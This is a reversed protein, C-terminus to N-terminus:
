VIDILGAHRRPRQKLVHDRRPADLLLIHREGDREALLKEAAFTSDADVAAAEGVRRKREDRVVFEVAEFGANLVNKSIFVAMLEFNHCLARFKAYKHYAEQLFCVFKKLMFQYDSWLSSPNLTKRLLRTALYYKMELRFLHPYEFFTIRRSTFSKKGISYDDWFPDNLNWVDNEWYSGAIFREMDKVKRLDPILQYNYALNM